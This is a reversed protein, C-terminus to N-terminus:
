SVREMKGKLWLQLALRIIQSESRDTDIAEKDLAEKLQSSVYGYVRIKKM